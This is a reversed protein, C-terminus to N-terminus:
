RKASCHVTELLNMAETSRANLDACEAEFVPLANRKQHCARREQM